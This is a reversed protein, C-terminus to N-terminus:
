RSIAKSYRYLCKEESTMDKTAPDDDEDLNFYVPLTFTVPAPKGGIRGPTWRPMNKVAEVVAEGCGGGIDKLIKVDAVSGDREVVFSVYVKGTLGQEHAEAPYSLNHCLYVYLSDIGGPFEPDVPFPYFIMSERDVSDNQAAVAGCNLLLVVALLFEKIKM